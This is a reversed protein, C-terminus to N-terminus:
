FVLFPLIWNSYNCLIVILSIPKWASSCLIKTLLYFAALLTKNQDPNTKSMNPMVWPRRWLWLVDAIYLCFLLLNRLLSYSERVWRRLLFQSFLLLFGVQHGCGFAMDKPNSLCIPCLQTWFWTFIDIKVRWWCDFHCM